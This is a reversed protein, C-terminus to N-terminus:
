KQLQSIEDFNAPPACFLRYDAGKRDQRILDRASNPLDQFSELRSGVLHMVTGATEDSFPPTAGQRVWTLNAPRVGTSDLLFDYIEWAQYHGRGPIETDIFLPAQFVRLGPGALQSTIPMCPVVRRQEGHGQVVSPIINGHPGRSYEIVQYDYKIPQVPKGQYETMAEGTRPDLFFFIKRSLQVVKDESCQVAVAVDWGEVKALVDGGSQEFLEGTCHWFIHPLKRSDSRRLDSAGCRMQVFSAFVDEVLLKEELKGIASNELSSKSEPEMSQGTEVLCDVVQARRM